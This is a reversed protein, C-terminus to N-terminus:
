YCSIAVWELIRAQLIGHVSSSLPSCDVPQLSDSVVSCSWKWKWKWLHMLSGQHSPLYLIWRCHLLQQLPPNPLIGQLLSHSVVGTNKGSFYGMSLPLRTPWLGFPQLSDPVVSCMCVCLHVCVCVCVCVFSLSKHIENQFHCLKENAAMYLVTQWLFHFLNKARSKSNMTYFSEFNPIGNQSETFALTWQFESLNSCLLCDTWSSLAAVVPGDPPQIHPANQPLEGDLTDVLHLCEIVASVALSCPFTVKSQKWTEVGSSILCVRQTAVASLFM